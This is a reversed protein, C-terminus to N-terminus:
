NKVGKGVYDKGANLDDMAQIKNQSIYAKGIYTGRTEDADEM